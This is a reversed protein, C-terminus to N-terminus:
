NQELKRNSLYQCKIIAYTYENVMVSKDGDTGFRTLCAKKGTTKQNQDNPPPCTQAMYGPRLIDMIGVVMDYPLLTKM